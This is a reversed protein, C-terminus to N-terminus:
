RFIAVASALTKSVGWDIRLAVAAWALLVRVDLASGRRSYAAAVAATTTSRGEPTGGDRDAVFWKRAVPRVLANCIAGLALIYLTGSGSAWEAWWM